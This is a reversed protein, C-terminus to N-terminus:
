FRLQVQIGAARESPDFWVGMRTGMVYKRGARNIVRAEIFASASALVANVVYVIRWAQASRETLEYAGGGGTFVVRAGVFQQLVAIAAIAVHAGGQAYMWLRFGQLTFAYPAASAYFQGAGPLVLSALSAMWPNRHGRELLRSEPSVPIDDLPDGQLWALSLLAPGTAEPM